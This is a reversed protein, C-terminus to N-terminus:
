VLWERVLVWKEFGKYIFDRKKAMNGIHLSRNAYRQM